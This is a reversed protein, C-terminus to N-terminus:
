TILKGAWAGVLAALPACAASASRAVLKCRQALCQAEFCPPASSGAANSPKWSQTSLATTCEAGTECILDTPALCVSKRCTEGQNCDANVKCEATVPAAKSSSEDSCGLVSMACFVLPLALHLGLARSFMLDFRVLSTPM